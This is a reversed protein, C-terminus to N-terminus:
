PLGGTTSSPMLPQTPQDAYTAPRGNGPTRGGTSAALPYTTDYRRVSSAKLARAVVMGALLGAGAVVWPQRRAFDEAEALLREGDAETLFRGLRDTQEAAREAIRAQQDNGEMRAQEAVQRLTAGTSEIQRGVQTSREDLQSQVAGRGRQAVEGAQASVVDKAQEVKEGVATGASQETQM